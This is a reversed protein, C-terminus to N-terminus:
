SASSRRTPVSPSALTLVAITTFSPSKRLMRLGYSFDQWLDGM